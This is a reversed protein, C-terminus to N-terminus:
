GGDNFKGVAVSTPELSVVSPALKTDRCFTPLVVSLKGIGDEPLLGLMPGSKETYLLPVPSQGSVVADDDEGPV